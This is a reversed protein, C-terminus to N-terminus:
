LHCVVPHWNFVRLHHLAAFASFPYPRGLCLPCMCQFQKAHLAHFRLRSNKDAYPPYITFMVPLYITFMVAPIYDVLRTFSRCKSNKTRYSRGVWGMWGTNLPHTCAWGTNPPHICTWLINGDEGLGGGQLTASYPLSLQRTKKISRM